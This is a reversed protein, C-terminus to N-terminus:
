AGLDALARGEADAQGLLRIHVLFGRPRDPGALTGSICFNRISLDGTLGSRQRCELKQMAKKRARGAGEGNPRGCEEERHSVHFNCDTTVMPAEGELLLDNLGNQGGAM